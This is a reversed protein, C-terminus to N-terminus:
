DMMWMHWQRSAVYDLDDRRLHRWAPLLLEDTCPYPPLLPGVCQLAAIIVHAFAMRLAALTCPIDVVVVLGNVLQSNAM